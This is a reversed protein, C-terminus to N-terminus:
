VNESRMPCRVILCSDRGLLFFGGTFKARQLLSFDKAGPTSSRIYRIHSPSQSLRSSSSSKTKWDLQGSLHHYSLDKIKFGTVILSCCVTPQYREKSYKVEDHGSEIM